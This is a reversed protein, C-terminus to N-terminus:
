GGSLFSLMCHTKGVGNINKKQKKPDDDRVSLKWFESFVRMFQVFNLICHGFITQPPLPLRSFPPLAM